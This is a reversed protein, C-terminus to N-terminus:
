HSFACEPGRRCERGFRCAPRGVNAPLSGGSRDGGSRESGGRDGRDGDGWPKSDWKHQFKCDARKCASGYRCPTARCSDRTDRADREPKRGDHRFICDPRTCTAGFRCTKRRLAAKAESVDDEVPHRLKCDNGAKCAGVVFPICLASDGPKGEGEKRRDSWSGPLDGDGGGGQRGSSGSRARSSSGQSYSRSRSRRKPEERSKARRERDHSRSRSRSRSAGARVRGGHRAPPALVAATTTSKSKSFELEVELKRVVDQLRVVEEERRDVRGLSDELQRELDSIKSKKGALDGELKQVKSSAEDRRAEADEVARKLDGDEIASPRIFSSEVAAQLASLSNSAEKFADFAEKICDQVEPPIGM